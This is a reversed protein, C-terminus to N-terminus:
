SAGLYLKLQRAAAKRDFTTGALEDRQGIQAFLRELFTRFRDCEEIAHMLRAPDLLDNEELAGMASLFADFHPYDAARLLPYGMARFYALFERVFQLPSVGSWRVDGGAVQTGRAKEAFARVIQAFMWVDRRLRESLTRRAVADDFVGQEDLRVGLSRGLFLIANQLAPRLNRVTGLAATRLVDLTPPPSPAPFDHEFARRM